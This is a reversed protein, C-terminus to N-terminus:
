KPKSEVKKQRTKFERPSELVEQKKGLLKGIVGPGGWMGVKRQKAKAEAERYEKEKGGYEAGTKAEYVGAWGAKIMELGVDRKLGLFRRTYVMGVVRGYQDKALPLVRVRQNLLQGTLWKLADRGHPQGPKGFHPLEPADIGAIRVHITEDSLETPKTPIRRYWGWGAFRGLPTHYLRFNDADGVRTVYGYLSKKRLIKPSIYEATRIRRLHRKYLLPLSLALTATATCWALTRLNHSSPTSSSQGPLTAAPNSSSGNESTRSPNERHNSLKWDSWFWGM